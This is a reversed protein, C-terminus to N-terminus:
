LLIDSLIYVRLQVQKTPQNPLPSNSTIEPIDLVYHTPNYNRKLLDSLSFGTKM